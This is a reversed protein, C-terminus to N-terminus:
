ISSLNSEAAAANADDVPPPLLGRARLACDALDDQTPTRATSQEILQQRLRDWRAEGDAMAQQDHKPIHIYAAYPVRVSSGGAHYGRNLLVCQGRPLEQFGRTEMLPRSQRQESTGSSGGGKGRNRSKQKYRVEENGITESYEKATHKDNLQFVAHTSCGGLIGHVMEKGYAQELIGLAQCGLLATLGSSRNQNLWDSLSPMYISPLEDLSVVLPDRRDQFLNRDILMHLVSAILPGVTSHIRPASRFVIMRKGQLDLPLTTKGCFAALASPVMFRTFLLNATSIISAATEPSGATSYFQDFAASAWPDIDAQQLREHLRDLALLKQALMIDAQQSGKALQLVAQSLQDGAEAFFGDQKSTDALKLNRNLTVSLQRAMEADDPGSLFDLPNCACSDESGPAFVSIKYGNRAAYGAVKGSPPPSEHGKYDYYIIPFGQDIASRVAPDIFSFTKGSGPGGVVFTGSEMHPLYLTKPDAPLQKIKKGNVKRVGSNRPSGVYLAVEERKRAEIQQCALKRANARERKGAWRGRAVTGSKSQGGELYSVAAFAAVCFLLGFGVPSLLWGTWDFGPSPAQPQAPQAPQSIQQQQQQPV